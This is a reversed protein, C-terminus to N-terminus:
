GSTMINEIDINTLSEPDPIDEWKTDYDTNSDKMLVQGTLGGTDVGKGIAQIEQQMLDIKDLIQQIVTKTPESPAQGMDPSVGQLITGALGWLSPKVVATTTIGLAGIYLEGPSKLVEWPIPTQLSSDLEICYEEGAKGNKFCAYKTISEWESSFTFQVTDTNVSGVIALSKKTISIDKDTVNVYYLM